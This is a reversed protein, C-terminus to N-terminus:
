LFDRHPHPSDIQEKAGFFFLFRQNGTHSNKVLKEAKTSEQQSCVLDKSLDNNPSRFPGDSTKEGLIKHDYVEYQSRPRLFVMKERQLINNSYGCENNKASIM